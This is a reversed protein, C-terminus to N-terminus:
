RLPDVDSAEILADKQTRSLRALAPCHKRATMLYSVLKRAVASSLAPRRPVLKGSVDEMSAIIFVDDKASPQCFEYALRDALREYFQSESMTGGDYLLGRELSDKEGMMCPDSGGPKLSGFESLVDIRLGRLDSSAGDRCAEAESRMVQAGRLDVGEWKLGISKRLDADRFDAGLTEASDFVANIADSAVFKAWRLDAGSFKVGQLRANVLNAGVLQSGTLDAETMEAKRFDALSARVMGMTAQNLRAGFFHARRLDALHLDVGDLTAGELHADRLDASSLNVGNMTAGDLRAERLDALYLSAEQLKANKFNAGRLCTISRLRRSRTTAMYDEITTRSSIRSDTIGDLSDFKARRLDADKFNVGRLDAGRFDANILSAGAFNAGRLDRGALQAGPNALSPEQSSSEGLANGPLVLDRDPWGSFLDWRGVRFEFGTSPGGALITSVFVATLTVLGGIFTSATPRFRSLDPEDKLAGVRSSPARLFFYWILAIDGLLLGKHWATIALSHYPLFKIQTAILLGAPLIIGVVFLLMRLLFGIFGGHRRAGLLICVALSPFFLDTEEELPNNQSVYLNVKCALLYQMLLLHLHLFVLLAPALVYFKELPMQVDFLPLGMSTGLLLVKDTTSAVAVGIYVCVVLFTLTASGIYQASENISAILKDSSPKGKEEGSSGKIVFEAEQVILRSM